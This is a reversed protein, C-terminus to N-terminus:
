FTTPKGDYEDTLSGTARDWVGGISLAVTVYRIEGSLFITKSDERWTASVSRYKDVSLRRTHLVRGTAVDTLRMAGDTDAQFRTKGDPSM